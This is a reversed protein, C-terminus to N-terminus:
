EAAFEQMMKATWLKYGDENLHLGDEIFWKRSISGDESDLMPTAIDVFRYRGSEHKGLEERIKQNAQDMERWQKWRNVSPKIAIFYVEADPLEHRIRKFLVEFDGLVQDVSKGSGIDNDGAYIVIRSPQYPFLIKDAYYSCDSLHSGGFGRNLATVGPFYRELDWKRISSSGIFLTGGPCPKSNQDQDLFAQIDKEFRLPDPDSVKQAFSTISGMLMLLVIGTALFVMKVRHRWRRYIVFRFAENKIPDIHSM